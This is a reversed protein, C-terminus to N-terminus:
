ISLTCRGPFASGASGASRIRTAVARTKPAVNTVLSAWSSRYEWCRCTRASSAHDFGNKKIQAVHDYREIDFPSVRPHGLTASTLRFFHGCPNASSAQHPRELLALDFGFRKHAFEGASQFQLEGIPLKAVPPATNKQRFGQHRLRQQRIERAPM